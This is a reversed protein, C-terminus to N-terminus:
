APATALDFAVNVEARHMRLLQRAQPACKGCCGAVGLNRRLDRLRTAGADIAAKIERDTVANCICVYMTLPGRRLDINTKIIIRVLILQLLV